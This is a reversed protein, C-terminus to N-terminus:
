CHQVEWGFHRIWWKRLSGAADPLDRDQAGRGRGMDYVVTVARETEATGTHLFPCLAGQLSRWVGLLWVRPNFCVLTPTCWHIQSHWYYIELCKHFIQFFGLSFYLVLLAPPRGAALAPQLSSSVRRTILFTYSFIRTRWLAISIFFFFWMM